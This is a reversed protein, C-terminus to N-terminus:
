RPVRRRRCYRSAGGLRCLLRKTRLMACRVVGGSITRERLGCTVRQELQEITQKLMQVYTALLKANSHKLKARDLARQPGDTRAQVRRKYWSDAYDAFSPLVLEIGITMQDIPGNLANTCALAAVISPPM